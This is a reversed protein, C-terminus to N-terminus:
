TNPTGHDCSRRWLMHRMFIGMEATWRGVEERCTTAAALNSSTMLRIAINAM